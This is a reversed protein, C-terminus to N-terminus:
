VTSYDTNCVEHAIPTRRNFFAALSVHPRVSPAAAYRGHVCVGLKAASFATEYIKRRSKQAPVNNAM